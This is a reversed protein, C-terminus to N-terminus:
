RAGRIIGRLRDWEGIGAPRQKPPQIVPPNSNNADMFPGSTCVEYCGPRAALSIAQNSVIRCIDGDNPCVVRCRPSNDVGLPFPSFPDPFADRGFERRFQANPDNLRNHQDVRPPIKQLGEPDSYSLPNGGVYGFRNWGGQLDIPDSQTYRGITASYSRNLNYHLGSEVDFYQGPYRLNFTVAAVNTGGFSQNLDTNAFRNKAITPKEDGFASYAWQWAVQGDSQVLRRPTNLHDTQIAYHKSGYVLAVPMPGSATPLYIYKANQGWATTAGGALTDAILTGSMGEIDDYVYSMGSKQATATTPNWLSEFFATFTDLVTQTATEPPNTFAFQPATKFVRQALANHAYKTISDDTTATSNWGLSTAALRGESDYAYHRLGDTLLAGNADYAYNVAAASTAGGTQAMTQNFGLLKNSAPDIQYSRTTTITKSVLPSATTGAGTVTTTALVSTQRNGNADYTFTASNTPTATTAAGAQTFATIRGVADYSVNYTVSVPVVASGTTIAGAATRTPQILQQTIQSIRGAVDYQYSAFENSLMRGATDFSRSATLTTTPTATTADAFDWNWSLPQGLPSWAINSILPLATATASTQWNLGSLQGATNYVYNLIGGNPYSMSALQGAGAGSAVYTYNVIRNDGSTLLQTKRTVRGLTDRVYTTKAAADTIVAAYGVTDYTISTTRATATNGDDAFTILTPRGLLDRQITTAQGLADTLTTPLGLADYQATQLGADTSLTQKANGNADRDYSTLVGKFDSAATVSDLANYALQATANQGANAAQTIATLRKLGDLGYSTTQGLANADQVKDGNANYASTNVLNAGVTESVVRNVSNISRALQWAVQGASNKVQEGVRNGIADLTYSGSAGRNDSWGVLRQAADYTYSIVHGSPMATSALQGSPTYAYATVQGGRNLGTLRGRSGYSYTTVLGNPATETTVRGAADYAYSTIQNLANKVTAVNGAADYTYTTVAGNAATETAVLGQANYTWATTQAQGSATDTVTQSLKNGLADYTYATLRGSETVSVPLRLTPHWTTNMTQAEPRGAARTTSLPLKRTLDYTYMTQVGLYDTERDILGTSNQVRNAADKGPMQGNSTVNAGTVALTGATNSYTYSRQTGLPDTITASTNLAATASNSGYNVQYKDAGGAHESSIARGSADYVYTAFRNNNEDVIGTLAKPFAANEYLYQISSNLTGNQNYGASIISSYSNYQYSIQQGDPTSVSSLQGSANYSFSLSRGFQNTVTALQGSPNYALTYVLGNRQTMTVLKGAPTFQWIDDNQGSTYLTGSANETLTDIGGINVWPATTAPRTFRRQSGDGIQITKSLGDSSAILQIGFRHNWNSGMGASPTTDGWKTRYYRTLDLGHPSSDAYDSQIKIKEGTAPLIPNGLIDGAARPCMDPIIPLPTSCFKYAYGGIVGYMPENYLQM